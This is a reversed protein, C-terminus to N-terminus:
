GARSNVAARTPRATATALTEVASAVLLVTLALPRETVADSEGSETVFPWVTVCVADTFFADSAFSCTTRLTMPAAGLAEGVLKEAVSWGPAVNDFDTLKGAAMRLGPVWVSVTIPILLPVPL